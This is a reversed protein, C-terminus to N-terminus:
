VESHKSKFYNHQSILEADLFLSNLFTLAKNRGYKTGERHYKRCTSLVLPRPDSHQYRSCANYAQGEISNKKIAEEKGSLIKVVWSQQQCFRPQVDM